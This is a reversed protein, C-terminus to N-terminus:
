ESCRVRPEKWCFTEPVPKCTTEPSQVCDVPTKVYECKRKVKKCSEKKQQKKGCTRSKLRFEKCVYELVEVDVGATRWVWDCKKSTKRPYCEKNDNTQTGVSEDKDCTFYTVDRCVKETKEHCNKKVYTTVCKQTQQTFCKEVVVVECEDSSSSPRSYILNAAASDETLNLQRVIVPNHSILASLVSNV